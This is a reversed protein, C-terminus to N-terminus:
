KWGRELSFDITFGYLVCHWGGRLPKGYCSLKRGHCLEADPLRSYPNQREKKGCCPFFTVLELINIPQLELKDAIWIIGDDSIFGFHEQWICCHCLRAESLRINLLQGM